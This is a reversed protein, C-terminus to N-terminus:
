SLDAIMMVLLPKPKYFVLKKEFTTKSFLFPPRVKQNGRSCQGCTHASRTCRVQRRQTQRRLLGGQDEQEGGEAAGGVGEETQGAAPSPLEREYRWASM